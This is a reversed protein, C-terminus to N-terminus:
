DGIVSAMDEVKKILEEYTHTRNRMCIRADENCILCRRPSLGLGIRSIQKHEKDFVDIDFIRGLKHEDEIDVMLKKLNHADIDVIMYCEPGTMKSLQESFLVKLNRRNLTEYIAKVGDRHIKRYIENDKIEGPTNLTFSILSYPYKELLEIQKNARDERSKLIEILMKENIM